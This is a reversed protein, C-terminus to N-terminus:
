LLEVYNRCYKSCNFGLEFPNEFKFKFEKPNEWKLRNAVQLTAEFKPICTLWDLNVTNLIM